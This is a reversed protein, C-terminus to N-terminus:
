RTRVKSPGEIHHNNLVFGQPNQTFEGGMSLGPQNRFQEHAESTENGM